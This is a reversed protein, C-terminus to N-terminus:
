SRGLSKPEMAICYMTLECEAYLSCATTGNVHQGYLLWYWNIAPGASATCGYDGLDGLIDSKKLGFMGGTSQYSVMYAPKENTVLRCKSGAREQAEQISGGFSSSKQPCIGVCCVTGGNLNAVSVKMKSGYVIFRNYLGALQDFGMPQGGTGTHDVDYLNNGFFMNQAVAVGTTLPVSQRYRLKYVASPAVLSRPLNNTRYNKNFKRRRNRPRRNRRSYSTKGNPM